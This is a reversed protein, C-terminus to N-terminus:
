KVGTRCAEVKGRGGRGGRMERRGGECAGTNARRTLKMKWRKKRKEEKKERWQMPGREEEERM